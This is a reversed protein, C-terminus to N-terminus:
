IRLTPTEFDNVCEEEGVRGQLGLERTGKGVWQSNEGVEPQRLYYDERSFYGSAHDAMMGQSITLM